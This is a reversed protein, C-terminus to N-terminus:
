GPGTDREKRVQIVTPFINGLQEHSKQIGRSSHPYISILNDRVSAFLLEPLLPAMDAKNVVRDGPDEWPGTGTPWCSSLIQGAFPQPQLRAQGSAPSYSFGHGLSKDKEKEGM